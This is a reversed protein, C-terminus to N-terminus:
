RIKEATQAGLPVIHRMAPDARRASRNAMTAPEPMPEDPRTAAALSQLWYILRPDTESEAASLLAGALVHENAILAEDKTLFKHTVGGQGTAIVWRNNQYYAGVRSRM